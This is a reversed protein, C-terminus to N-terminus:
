GWDHGDPAAILGPMPCPFFREAIVNPFGSKENDIRGRIIVFPTARVLERQREQLPTYVVVNSLGFEDELLMFMVGSATQPRQRTVVMGAIEVRAGQPMRNANGPGGLQKSSIIGEHLLHRVQAMPHPRASMGLAEYDWALEQWPGPRPLTVMDQEVPLPLAAQYGAKRKGGTETAEVATGKTLLGLQWLLERRALGFEDLTGARILAECEGHDIGTRTMLDYITRYPGHAEREAVILRSTTIALGGASVGPGDVSGTAKSAPQLRQERAKGRLVREDTWGGGIGNVQTLGLRIGDDEPWSGARSLNIAPARVELGHRNADGTLVEVSYFGMPQANFLSCYYAAPYYYRLWCSEYALLAFAVAHSKPFGFAAFAAMRKFAVEAAERCVGQRAAGAFFEEALAAMAEASRKRSMARRLRDAQGPTFGAVACSIQLVQDQYLVHGLTEAMFPALLPALEPHGYDIDVPEGRALKKRYEMYPHFAGAMIPGPRIIAVQVALDDIDSPRTHPLSQIQARSEIQFTGVTDGAQISAFIEESDHPIRGLDVKVGNVEEIMDLCDDVASLMGLALFDIKVFRADDVSDKDWQCVFRGPMRAPEVPVVSSLPEASIVVGGVHQGIHRPFGAVEHALSVLDSWIPAGALSKLEPILQMEEGIEHASAFNGSLKNLKALTPAPLGLVKGIDIVANKFQYTPFAAVIAAHEPGYRDYIRQLLEDRIDRPFDIDIDPLSHLEENLFRDLYLNNKVPDIHSLGILYCVISSVSSGRGRGVPREDPPLHKPRGHLEHAIEGVLEMIDWYVLFFGALGHKEILALERELRERADGRFGPEFPGYKRQFARECIGRLFSDLTAGEPVPYDPLRYPLDRTLDFRCREAIALTNSIASPYREFRRAMEEPRKLFFESNPRRERHSSDLTLRHRVAVLVDNLRHRARIHYHANNTAVVDLGARGALDALAAVRQSDGYVDHHQLEVFFHDAGLADRYESATSLASQQTGHAGAGRAIESDKCGSLVILGAHHEFLWEKEVMPTDKGYTKYALGLLRCLNRYGDITEALVTLHGEGMEQSRQLAPSPPVEREATQEKSAITMRDSRAPEQRGQRRPSEGVQAPSPLAESKARQEKSAITLECGTIPKLGREHAAKAYEMAGYLNDHDTIALAAYGLEAARGVMEDTSSAGERLSWCSHAHLEAYAAM